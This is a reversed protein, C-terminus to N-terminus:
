SQLRHTALVTLKPTLLSDPCDSLCLFPPTLPLFGLPLPFPAPSLHLLLLSSSPSSCSLFILSFSSLRCPPQGDMVMLWKCQAFSYWISSWARREQDWPCSNNNEGGKKNVSVTKTWGRYHSAGIWWCDPLGWRQSESIGKTAFHTDSLLTWSMTIQKLRRAVNLHLFGFRYDRLCQWQIVDDPFNWKWWCCSIILTLM